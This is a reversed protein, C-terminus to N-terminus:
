LGNIVVEPCRKSDDVPSKLAVDTSDEITSANTSPLSSSQPSNQGNTLTPTPASSDIEIPMRAAVFSTPSKSPHLPQEQVVKEIAVLQKGYSYKKLQTLQPKLDEVFRDRDAGKLQSLLKQIVYNGYQDKIMLQVPSTGDSRLTTIQAVIARRQEDTGYEISKEVVNSAFKHKSLHLLQATVIKIVKARDEPSGHQIIHQTVYNGFQDTILTTSCQHLEELIAVQDHPKCHELIRQIVRCGYPHAALTQVKGRFAEIIFQIHETPVREIAKQVVHNGNQDQVCKLVDANLEQALEAQQDALVHELAKQVVRCGYMQMSLELVHHKMQEALVRKQVQNGHEFMKQIVYNGFVDTMLQLANSQIERFVQEKEDSNATELKLQIFRSGHQDGSFEVIHNYIDRLEYKKTSKNSSRFEELLVSRVGAGVDQHKAPQTPIVPAAAYPPIPMPYGYPLNGPRFSPQMYEYPYPSYQGQFQMYAQAQQHYINQLRQNLEAPGTPARPGRSTPRYVLEQGLPPTGSASFYKPSNLGRRYDSGAPSVSGRDTFRAPKSFYDQNAFPQNSYPDYNNVSKSGHGDGWMASGNLSQIQQAFSSHTPSYSNGVNNNAHSSGPQDADRGLSTGALKDNLEMEHQALDYRMGNTQMTYSASPGSISPRQSHISSSPTHNGISGFPQHGSTFSISGGNRGSESARSPPMSRDRSVSGIALYQSPIEVDYADSNGYQGSNEKDDNYSYSPTKKQVFSFSGSSPNLSSKPQSRYSLGQGGSPRTQHYPNQLESLTQAPVNPISNRTRSPSTSGSHSQMTPSTTDPANWPGNTHASWTDAESEAALAKSGSPGDPFEKNGVSPKANERKANTYGSGITSNGWIAGSPQWTAGNGFSQALPASQSSDSNHGGPAAGFEPFRPARTNSPM